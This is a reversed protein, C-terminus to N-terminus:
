GRRGRVRRRGAAVPEAACPPEGREDYEWVTVWLRANAPVGPLGRALSLAKIAAATIGMVHKSLEYRRERSDPCPDRLELGLSPAHKLVPKDLIEYHSYGVVWPRAEDYLDKYITM